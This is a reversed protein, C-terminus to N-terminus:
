AGRFTAITAALGDRLTWRPSWGLRAVTDSIEAELQGVAGAARAGFLVESQSGCLEVILRALELMTVSTGSAFLLPDAGAPGSDGLTLFADMTDEIYIFDRRETGTALQLPRGDLAAAVFLPIVATKQQGPGYANFQRVISTRGGRIRAAEEVMIKSWGYPTLPRCDTHPGQPPPTSGYVQSSSTCIVHTSDDVAALLHTTGAANVIMSEAFNALTRGRDPSTALHFVTDFQRERLPALSRPDALDAVITGVDDREISQRSLITTRVGRALLARVLASGIYGTAGTVLVNQM